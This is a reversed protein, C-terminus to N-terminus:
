LYPGANFKGANTKCAIQNAAFLMNVTQKGVTTAATTQLNYWKKNQLCSASKKEAKHMQWDNRLSRGYLAAVM